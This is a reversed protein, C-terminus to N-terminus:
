FKIREADCHSAISGRTYLFHKREVLSDCGNHSAICIFLELFNKKTLINLKKANFYNRAKFACLKNCAADERTQKAKGMIEPMKLYAASVRRLHEDSKINEENGDFSNAHFFSIFSLLKIFICYFSVSLWLSENWNPHHFPPLWM